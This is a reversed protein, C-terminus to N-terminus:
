LVYALKMITKCTNCLTLFVMAHELGKRITNVSSYSGRSAEIRAAVDRLGRPIGECIKQPRLLELV